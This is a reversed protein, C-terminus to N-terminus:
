LSILACSAYAVGDKNRNIGISVIRHWAHWTHVSVGLLM